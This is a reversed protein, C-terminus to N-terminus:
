LEQKNGMSPGAGNLGKEELPEITSFGGKGLTLFVSCSLGQSKKWGQSM